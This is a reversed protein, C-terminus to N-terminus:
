QVSHLRFSKVKSARRRESVTKKAKFGAASNSRQRDKIAIKMNVARRFKSVALRGGEQPIASSSKGSKSVGIRDLGRMCSDVLIKMGENSESTM